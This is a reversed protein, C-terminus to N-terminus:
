TGLIRFTRFQGSRLLDIRSSSDYEDWPSGSYWWL